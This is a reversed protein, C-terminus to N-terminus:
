YIHTSETEMVPRTLQDSTLEVKFRVDGAALGKVRLRFVATAQPALSPVPAFTVAKGVVKAETPGTSSVYEEEPPLTCNIGINTDVASGQNLVTITYTLEGGVETPDPDDVCELLIAPIGKVDFSCSTTAEACYTVTASNSVKGIQDCRMTTKLVRTKGADLTGLHWVINSGDRVGDNDANVFQVGGTVADSVVVNLAPGDGRNTVTIEFTVNRGLYRLEPCTKTIDVIPGADVVCAFLGLLLLAPLAVIRM